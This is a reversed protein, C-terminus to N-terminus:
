LYHQKLKLITDQELWALRNLKRKFDDWDMRGVLVFRRIITVIQKALLHCEVIRDIEDERYKTYSLFQGFVYRSAGILGFCQDVAEWQRKSYATGDNLVSEYLIGNDEFRKLWEVFLRLTETDEACHEANFDLELVTRMSHPLSDFADQIHKAELYGYLGDWDQVYFSSFREDYQTCMLSHTSHINQFAKQRYPLYFEDGWLFVPEGKGRQLRNSLYMAAETFCNFQRRRPIVGLRILDKDSLSPEIYKWRSKGEIIIQKFVEETSQYSNYFLPVIRVQHCHLYALIQSKRCDYFKEDSRTIHLNRQEM